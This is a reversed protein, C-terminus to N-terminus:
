ARVEGLALTLILVALDPSVDFRRALWLARFDQKPSPPANNEFNGVLSISKRARDGGAAPNARKQAM